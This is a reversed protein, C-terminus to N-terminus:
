CLCNIELNNRQAYWQCAMLPSECIDCITIRPQSDTAGISEHLTCLMGYDAAASILVNADPKGRLISGLAEGYFEYWPPVAVMNLLRFLQWTGHYWACNRPPADSGDKAWEEMGGSAKGACATQSWEWMLPSSELLLALNSEDLQYLGGTNKLAQQEDDTITM